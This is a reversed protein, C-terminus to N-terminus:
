IWRKSFCILSYRQGASFGEQEEDRGGLGWRCQNGQGRRRVEGAARRLDRHGLGEPSNNLEELGAEKGRGVYKRDGPRGTYRGVVCIELLVVGGASLFSGGVLSTLCARQAGIARGWGCGWGWGM